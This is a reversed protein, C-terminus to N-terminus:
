GYFRGNQDELLFVILSNPAAVFGNIEVGFWLRGEDQGNMGCKPMERKEGRRVKRGGCKM